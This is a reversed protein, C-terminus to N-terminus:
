SDLILQANVRDALEWLPGHTVIGEGRGQKTPSARYLTRVTDGFGVVVWWTGDPYRRRWTTSVFKGTDTRAEVLILEWAEPDFKELDALPADHGDVRQRLHAGHLRLPRVGTLVQHVRAFLPSPGSDVHFRAVSVGM